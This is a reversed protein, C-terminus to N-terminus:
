QFIKHFHCLKMIKLEIMCLHEQSVKNKPTAELVDNYITHDSESSSSSSSSHVSRFSKFIIISLDIRNKDYNM